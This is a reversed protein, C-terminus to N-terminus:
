EGSKVLLHRIIDESIRLNAELEKSAAPKLKFQSLVYNGEVFRKIPYALKKKGWKDVKGVVGGRDTIFKGINGVIVDHREETVDPKIVLVLEYDNLKEEAKVEKQSVM